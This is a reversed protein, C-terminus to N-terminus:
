SESAGIAENNCFLCFINLGGSLYRGWRGLQTSSSHAVLDEQNQTHTPNPTGNPQQSIIDGERETVVNDSSSIPGKALYATCIKEIIQQLAPAVEQLLSQDAVLQALIASFSSCKILINFAEM